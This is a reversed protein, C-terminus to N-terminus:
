CYVHWFLTRRREPIKITLLSCIECATETNRNNVKFMYNGVSNHITDSSLAKSTRAKQQTLPVVTIDIDINELGTGAYITQSTLDKTM